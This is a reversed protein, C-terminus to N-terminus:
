WLIIEFELTCANIPNVFHSPSSTSRPPSSPPSPSTATSSSSSVEGWALPTGSIIFTDFEGQHHGRLLMIMGRESFLFVIAEASMESFEKFIIADKKGRYPPRMFLLRPPFAWPCFHAGGHPWSTPGHPPGETPGGAAEQRERASLNSKEIFFEKLLLELNM